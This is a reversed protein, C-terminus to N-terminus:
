VLHSNIDEAAQLAPAYHTFCLSLSIRLTAMSSARPLRYSVSPSRLLGPFCGEDEDGEEKETEGEEEEAGRTAKLLM